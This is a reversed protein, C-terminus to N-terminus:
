HGIASIQTQLALMKAITSESASFQARLSDAQQTAEREILSIREHLSTIQRSNADTLSTLLVNALSSPTVLSHKLFAPTGATNALLTGFQYAFGSLTTKGAPVLTFLAGM